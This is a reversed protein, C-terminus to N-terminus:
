TSRKGGLILNRRFSTWDSYGGVATINVPLDITFTKTNDSCAYSIFFVHAIREYVGLHFLNGGLTM